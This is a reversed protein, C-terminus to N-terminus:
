GALREVSWDTVVRMLDSRGPPTAYDIVSIIQPLAELVAANASTPHPTFASSPPLGWILKNIEEIRAPEVIESVRAAMSLGRPPGGAGGGLAISVRSDRSINAFKQSDRAVVFYLARGARLYNVVTAQPWGDQRITAVAMTRNEDLIELIRGKLTQEDPAQVVPGKQSM